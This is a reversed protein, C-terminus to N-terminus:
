RGAAGGQSPGAPEDAPLRPVGRVGDPRREAGRLLSRGAAPGVRHRPLEHAERRAERVQEHERRQRERREARRRRPAGLHLRRGGGRLLELGRRGAPGDRAAEHVGKHREEQDQEEDPRGLEAQRGERRGGDAKGEEPRPVGPQRLHGGPGDRRQEREPRLRGTGGRRRHPRRGGAGRALLGNPGGGRRVHADGPGAARVGHGARVEEQRRGRAPPAAGRGGGGPPNCSSGYDGRGGAPVVASRRGEEEQAEEEKRRLRVIRVHPAPRLARGKTGGSSEAAGDRRDEAVLSVVPRRLVAPPRPRVGGVLPPRLRRVGVRPRPPPGERPLLPRRPM